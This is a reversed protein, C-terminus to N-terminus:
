NFSGSRWATGNYIYLLNTSPNFYMSGTQPNLPNDGNTPIMISGSLNNDVDVTFGNKRSKNIGIGVVFVSTAGAKNLSNYSGVV